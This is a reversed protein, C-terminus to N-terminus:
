STITSAKQYAKKSILSYPGFPLALSFLLPEVFCKVRIEFAQNQAPAKVSIVMFLLLLFLTKPNKM